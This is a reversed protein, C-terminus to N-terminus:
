GNSSTYIYGPGSCSDQAAALYQGTYDSAISQWCASPASAM